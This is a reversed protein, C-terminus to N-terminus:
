SIFAEEFDSGAHHCAVFHESEGSKEMAPMEESCIESALPCRHAFPCGKRGESLDPAENSLSSLELESSSGPTAALLLQT